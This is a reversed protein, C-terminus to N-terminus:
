RLIEELLDFARPDKSQGLWFIAEKRVSKDRSERALRALHPIGAGDHLQSLSFVAHKRVESEPDKGIVELITDAKADDGQALWFVAEKRIEPDRHSRSLRALHPMGAGDRLEHLAFVAKKRVEESADKELAELIAPAAKPSGTHALWFLAEGRVKASGDTKAVGLITDPAEPVDSQSLSFIAKERIDASPDDKVVRSLFQYGRRGRAQGIWFLAHERTDFPYRAGAMDELATDAAATAHYALAALAQQELDEGKKEKGGSAERAVGALLTVSEEPKVGELWVFRRGGADMPCSASVSRVRGVKGGQIRALITLEPDARQDRSSSGWSQNHSELMCRSSKFNRDLCCTYGQGPAVPVAWAVWVPDGSGGARRMAAALGGAAATEIRANAVEPTKGLAYQSALAQSLIVLVIILMRTNM